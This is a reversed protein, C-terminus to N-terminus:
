GDYKCSLCSSVDNEDCFQCSKINECVINLILIKSNGSCKYFDSIGDFKKQTNLNVYSFGLTSPICDECGNKLNCSM